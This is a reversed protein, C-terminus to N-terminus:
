KTESLSWTSRTLHCQPFDNTTFFLESIAMPGNGIDLIECLWPKSTSHNYPICVYYNFKDLPGTIFSLLM